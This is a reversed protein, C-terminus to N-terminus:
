SFVSYVRMIPYVLHQQKTTMSHAPLRCKAGKKRNAQGCFFWWVATICQISRM